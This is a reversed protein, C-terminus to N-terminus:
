NKGELFSNLAAAIRIRRERLFEHYSSLELLVGDTPIAQNEFAETGSKEIVDIDSTTPNISRTRPVILVWPSSYGSGLCM